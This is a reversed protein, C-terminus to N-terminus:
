PRSVAYADAASALLGIALAGSLSAAGPATTAFTASLVFTSAGGVAAALPGSGIM